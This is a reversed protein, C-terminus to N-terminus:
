SRELNIVRPRGRTMLDDHALPRADKEVVKKEEVRAYSRDVPRGCGANCVSSRLKPQMCNATESLPHPPPSNKEKNKKKQSNRREEGRIKEWESGQRMGLSRRRNGGRYTEGNGRM